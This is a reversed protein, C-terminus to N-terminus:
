AYPCIFVYVNLWQRSMFHSLMRCVIMCLFVSKIFAFDCLKDYRCLLVCLFRDLLVTVSMILSYFACVCVCVLVGLCM